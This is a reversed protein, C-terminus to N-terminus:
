VVGPAKGAIANWEHVDHDHAAAADSRRERAAELVAVVRHGHDVALGVREPAETGSEVTLLDGAVAELLDDQLFGADPPGVRERSDGAAVVGVDDGRPDLRRPRLGHDRRAHDSAHRGEPHSVGTTPAACCAVRM